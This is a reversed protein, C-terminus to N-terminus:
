FRWAALVAFLILVAAVIAVFGEANIRVGRLLCVQLKPERMRATRWEVPQSSRKPPNRKTAQESIGDVVMPIAAGHTREVTKSARQLMKQLMSGASIKM